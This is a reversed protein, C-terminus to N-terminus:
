RYGKDKGLMIWYLIGCYKVFSNTKYIEQSYFM